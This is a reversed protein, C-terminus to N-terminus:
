SLGTSLCVSLCLCVSVSLLSAARAKLSREFRDALSLVTSMALVSLVLALGLLSLHGARFDRALLRFFFAHM